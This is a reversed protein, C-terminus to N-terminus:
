RFTGQLQDKPFLIKESRHSYIIQDALSSTLMFTFIYNTGKVDPIVEYEDAPEFCVRLADIHRQRFEYAFRPFFRGPGDITPFDYSSKDYRFRKQPTIFVIKPQLTRLARRSLRALGSM